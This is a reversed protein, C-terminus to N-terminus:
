SVGRWGDSGGYPLYEQMAKGYLNNADLDLIHVTPKSSDYGLINSHNAKAYRKAVMLLRGRIGRELFFYQNIDTLLDLKVGSYRLFADYTFHPASFYHTPDLSYDTLCKMHFSEFVDALQLVDCLLYLELYDRFTQCRFVHWLRQAHGYDEPTIVSDDLYNTFAEKNPLQTHKLISLHSYLALCAWLRKYVTRGLYLLIWTRGPIVLQLNTFSLLCAISNFLKNIFLM